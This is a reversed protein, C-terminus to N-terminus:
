KMYVYSKMRDEVIKEKFKKEEEKLKRKNDYRNYMVFVLVILYVILLNYLMRKTRLNEFDEQEKEEKEKQKIEDEIKQKNKVKGIEEKLLEEYSKESNLEDKIMGTKKYFAYSVSKRKVQEERLTKLFIHIQFERKSM